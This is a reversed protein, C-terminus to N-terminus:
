NFFRQQYGFVSAMPEGNQDRAPEFRIYQPALRCLAADTEPFGSSERIRCGTVQGEASVNLIAVARRGVRAERGGPPIPFLSSDSISEVLRPPAVQVPPGGQGEGGRGSGTGDGSGGAGTGSGSDAAGSNVASGTSTARPAPPDERVRIRPTPTATDRPVAERGPDGQAGEDPEPRPEPPPPPEEEPPATITVTFAETVSQEVGATFDPALARILGYFIAVHLLAIAILVPVRPRRKRSIFNEGEAM